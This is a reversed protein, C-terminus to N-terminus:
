VIKKWLIQAKQTTDPLLFCSIKWNLIDAILWLSENNKTNWKVWFAKNNIIKFKTQSHDIETIIPTIHKKRIKLLKKYFKLFDNNKSTNAAKWDIKSSLFVQKASADSFQKQSKNLLNKKNDLFDCFEKRRGKNILHSLKKEFDCFFLFPQECGFEEGMFLLPIAPSLLHMCIASRLANQCTLNTIREGFFRNGTQDHNQLFNICSIPNNEPNNGAISKALHYVPRDTYKKYYGMSEGTLLVHWAHHFSDNWQATFYRPQNNKDTQLYETEDAENELMLHINKDKFKRRINIAIEKLIHIKSDDKIAHVADFRLGDLHFEELWYLANQIYFDRVHRNQFNIADGWPTKHASNFFKSKAYVYLYNGEPGFHNYVVDLFIMLGKKHANKVLNKLEDPTGYSKDPAFMLVGDYGWNRKGAFDAVPMLQIATVGLSVFYDLKEELAQFTGKQSFTGVHVEYIVAECWPRGKWLFDNEWNFEDPNIVISADHVDKSQCRSAPDPVKLGNDLRFMYETGATAFTTAIKFWGEKQPLMTIDNLNKLCLEATKSDPAWFNFEVLNNALFKTGFNM